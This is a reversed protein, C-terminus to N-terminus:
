SKGSVGPCADQKFRMPNNPRKVGPPVALEGLFTKVSVELIYVNTCYNANEQGECAGPRPRLIGKRGMM